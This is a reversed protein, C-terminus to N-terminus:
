LEFDPTELAYASLTCATKHLVCVCVRDCVFPVNKARIEDVLGATKHLFCNSKNPMLQDVCDVIEPEGKYQELLFM